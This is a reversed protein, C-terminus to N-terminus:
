HTHTLNEIAIKLLAAKNYRSSKVGTLTQLQRKTATQLEAVMQARLRTTPAQPTTQAPTTTVTPTTSTAPTTTVTPQAHFGALENIFWLLADISALVVALAFEIPHVTNTNNM